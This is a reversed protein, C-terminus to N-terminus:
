LENQKEFNDKKLIEAHIDWQLQQNVKDDNISNERNYIYIPKINHKIKEFGAMEIMPYSLAVDCSMKYFENNKNKFCNFNKDFESIKQFLGARFNRMQSIKFNIKRLKDFDDKLYPMSCCRRGDTWSCGGYMFWINEKDFQDNIYKFVNKNYLWDDGDLSAVIDNKECEMMISDLWNPLATVRNRRKWVKISNAKSKDYTGVYEIIEFGSTGVFERKKEISDLFNCINKFSNDNSGDDIFLADFNNYKQSLVSAMCKIIYNEANYFPSILKIKNEM